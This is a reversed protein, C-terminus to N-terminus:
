QGRRGDEGDLDDVAEGRAGHATPRGPIAAIGVGVGGGLVGGVAEGLRDAAHEALHHELGGLADVHGRGPSLRGARRVTM